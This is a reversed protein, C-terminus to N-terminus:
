LMEEFKKWADPLAVGAMLADMVMDSIDPRHIAICGRCCWIGKEIYGHTREDM